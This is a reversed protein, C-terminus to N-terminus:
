EAYSLCCGGQGGVGAGAMRSLNEAPVLHLVISTTLQPAVVSALVPCARMMYVMLFAPARVAGALVGGALALLSHGPLSDGSRVGWQWGAGVVGSCGLWGSPGPAKAAPSPFGCFGVSDARLILFFILFVLSCVRSRVLSAGSSGAGRGSGLRASGLV